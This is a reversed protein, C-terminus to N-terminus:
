GAKQPTFLQCTSIKATAEDKFCIVGDFQTASPGFSKSGASEVIRTFLYLDAIRGSCQFVEKEAKVTLVLKGLVVTQMEVPHTPQQIDAFPYTGSTTSCKSLPTDTTGLPVNDSKCSVRGTTLDKICTDAEIRKSVNPMGFSKGARGREKSGGARSVFEIFTEVDKIQALRSQADFCNFVEKEMAVTKALHRATVVNLKFPAEPQPTQLQCAQPIPSPSAGREGAAMPALVIGVAAAVALAGGFWHWPARQAHQHM